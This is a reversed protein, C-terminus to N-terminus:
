VFTEQDKLILKNAFTHNMGVLLFMLGLGKLCTFPADWFDSYITGVRLAMEICKNASGHLLENNNKLIM